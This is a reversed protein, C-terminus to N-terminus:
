RELLGDHIKGVLRSSLHREQHKGMEHRSVALFTNRVFKAADGAM